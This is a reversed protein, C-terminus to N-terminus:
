RPLGLREAGVMFKEFLPAALGHEHFMRVTFAPELELGRRAHPRARETEGALSTAIARFLYASSFRPNAQTARAFCAAADAYRDDQLASEGLALHAEFAMPDLPSLRLARDAFNAATVTRGALANAQAGLYLATASSPNLAAGREIAALAVDNYPDLLSTVFGAIALSTGDDSDSDLTAGAHMMAAGRDHQDFGGRTFCLEHCWALLAHAPMYDPDLVLAQQLLPLAARAAKPM